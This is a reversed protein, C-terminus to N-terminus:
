KVRRKAELAELTRVFRVVLSRTLSWLIAVVRFNTLAHCIGCLSLTRGGGGWDLFGLSGAARGHGHRDAMM